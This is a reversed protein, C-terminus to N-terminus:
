PTLTLSDRYIANNTNLPDILFSKEISQLLIKQKRLIKETSKVWRIKGYKKEIYKAWHFLITNGRM